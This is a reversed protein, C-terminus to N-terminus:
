EARQHSLVVSTLVVSTLVVSTLVVSTLVVSTLVVSTLVVSTLAVSALVVSALALAIVPRLAIGGCMKTGARLMAAHCLETVGLYSWARHWVVVDALPTDTAVDPWRGVIETHRVGCREAGQAFVDLM